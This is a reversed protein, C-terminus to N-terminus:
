IDIENEEVELAEKLTISFQIDRGPILKYDFQTIYAEFSIDGGEIEFNIKERKNKINDFYATYEKAKLDGEKRKYYPFTSSFKVEKPLLVVGLILERGFINKYKKEETRSEIRLNKPTIPLSETGIIIKYSELKSENNQKYLDSINDIEKTTKTNKEKIKKEYNKYLEEAEKNNKDSFNQLRNNNWIM